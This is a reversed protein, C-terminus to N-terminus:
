ILTVMAQLGQIDYRTRRGAVSIGGAGLWSGNETVAGVAFSVSPPLTLMEDEGVEVLKDDKSEHFFTLALGGGYGVAPDSIVIPIPLFGTRGALWQSMDLKGDRSDVFQSFFSNGSAPNVALLLILLIGVYKFLIKM